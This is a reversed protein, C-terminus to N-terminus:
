KNAYAGVMMATLHKAEEMGCGPLIDGTLFQVLPAPSAPLLPVTVEKRETADTSKVLTNGSVRLYGTEGGIELSAPCGVTVFGTENVAICGEDYSMVTLANDEVGDKNKERVKEDKCVNTFVSKYSSPLGCFWDILYMGHAGLDIMAGGGCEKENYFHPPLWDGTSGNHCNRFRIYNIKGLEGSDVIAKATIHSALYKQFLSIVFKVGNDKVAKEVRICDENTLALVKETFIHKKANAIKVMVDAHTDSSTCVIVGEADSALLEEPSNFEHVNKSKCFDKRWEANEEYVGVVEGLQSATNFYGPAHVHWLGWLAVKM